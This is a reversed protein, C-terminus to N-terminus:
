RILPSVENTEMPASPDSLFHLAQFYSRRPVYIHGQIQSQEIAACEKDYYNRLALVQLKVQDPTLGRDLRCTIQRWADEKVSASDYEPSQPNWLCECSRYLQILELIKKEENI